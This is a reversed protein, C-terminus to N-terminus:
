ARAARAPTAKPHQRELTDRCISQFVQAVSDSSFHQEVFRRAAGALRDRLAADRALRTVATAFAEPTDGALYHQGAELPLGEVGITTSVVARGLAMAEYAKIRTGGGVRLPIIYVLGDRVFPRVDDVSGTFTWPLGREKSARVLKADPKRGIITVRARPLDRSVLPWVADMFWQVGDINAFSDMSATFVINVDGDKAEPPPQVQLFDLDVGTPIVAAEVGYTDRFQKQDRDSVVIVTDFRRLQAREFDRMKRLQNRWIAKIAPNSAVDLHRAFIEAEVNHTFLVSPVSLQGPMLVGAHTFDIVVVDPREALERAVLQRAPRSIETAVPIPLSSAIHRMRLYPFLPGRRTEPWSTFRDCMADLEARDREVGEPPAPSVLIIEFYGGKLGRLIQGTRIKGGSDPPFLYRSSVFLLKPRTTM